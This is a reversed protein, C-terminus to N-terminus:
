KTAYKGTKEGKCAPCIRQTQVEGRGNGSKVTVVVFGSGKCTPCTGKSPTLM